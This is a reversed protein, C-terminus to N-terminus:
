LYQLLTNQNFDSLLIFNHYTALGNCHFRKHDVKTNTKHAVIRVYIAYRCNETCCAIGLCCRDYLKGNCCAKYGCGNLKKNRVYAIFWIIRFLSNKNPVHKIPNKAHSNVGV